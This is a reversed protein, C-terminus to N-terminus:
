WKGNDSRCEITAAAWGEERGERKGVRRGSEFVRILELHIAQKTEEATLGAPELRKMAARVARIDSKYNLCETEKSPPPALAM